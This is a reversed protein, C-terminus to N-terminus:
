KGFVGEGGVDGGVFANTTSHSDLRGWSLAPTTAQKSIGSGVCVLQSMDMSTIDMLITVVAPIELTLELLTM